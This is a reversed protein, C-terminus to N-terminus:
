TSYETPRCSYIEFLRQEVDESHVSVEKLPVILKAAVHLFFHLIPMDAIEVHPNTNFIICPTM